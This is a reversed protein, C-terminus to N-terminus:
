LANHEAAHLQDFVQHRFRLRLGAKFDAHINSRFGIGRPAFDRLPEFLVHRNNKIVLKGLPIVSYWWAIAMTSFNNLELGKASTGWEWWAECYATLCAMRAESMGVTLPKITTPMTVNGPMIVPCIRAPAEGNIAM